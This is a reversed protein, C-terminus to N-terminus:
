GVVCNSNSNWWQRSTRSYTEGLSILRASDCKDAASCGYYKCRILLLHLSVIRSFVLSLRTAIVSRMNASANRRPPAPRRGAISGPRTTGVVAVSYLVKFRLSDKYNCELICWTVFKYTQQSNVDGNVKVMMDQRTLVMTFSGLTESLLKFDLQSVSFLWTVFNNVSILAIDFGSCFRLWRSGSSKIRRRKPGFVAEVDMVM